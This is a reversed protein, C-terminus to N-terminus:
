SIMRKHAQQCNDFNGNMQDNFDKADLPTLIDTWYQYYAQKCQEPMKRGCGASYELRDEKSIM